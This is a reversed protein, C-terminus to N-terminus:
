GKLFKRRADMAISLRLELDAIRAMAAKEGPSGKAIAYADKAEALKRKILVEEPLAGAEAMIRHGVADGTDIFAEEPHAPLPKGEGALERLKGEAEAKRIQAENLQRLTRSMAQAYRAEALRAM